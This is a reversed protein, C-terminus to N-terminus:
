QYKQPFFIQLRDRYLSQQFDFSIFLDDVIEETTGAKLCNGFCAEAPIQILKTSVKKIALRIEAWVLIVGASALASFVATRCCASDVVVM